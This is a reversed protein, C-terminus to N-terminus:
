FKSGLEKTAYARLEKIQTRWVQTSGLVAPGSSTDTSKSPSTTSWRAPAPWSIISRRSATWGMSHMGTDVVLRIARWIEYTLQGYKMHLPDKYLGIEAASVKPISRGAKSSRRTVATNASSPRTKWKRRFRSRCRHGPVSRACRRWRCRCRRFRRRREDDDRADPSPPLVTSGAIAASASRKRTMVNRARRRARRPGATRRLARGRCSRRDSRRRSAPSRPRSRAAIQPMENRGSTQRRQAERRGRGIARRRKTSTDVGPGGHCRM